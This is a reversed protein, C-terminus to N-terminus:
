GATLLSSMRQVRDAQPFTLWDWEGEEAGMWSALCRRFFQSPAGTATGIWDQGPTGLALYSRQRDEVLHRAADIWDSCPHMTVPAPIQDLFAHPDRDTAVVHIHTHDYCAGGKDRFDFSGHEFVLSNLGSHGRVLDTVQPILTRLDAREADDLWGVSLTHRKSVILLYWDTLAGICPIVVFHDTEHLVYDSRDHALGLDYFLNSDDGGEVECCFTCIERLTDDM